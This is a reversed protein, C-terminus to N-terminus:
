LSMTDRTSAGLVRIEFLMVKTQNASFRNIQLDAIQCPLELPMLFPLHFMSEEFINYM